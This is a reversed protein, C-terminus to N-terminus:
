LEQSTTIAMLRSCYLEKLVACTPLFSMSRRLNEYFHSFQAKTAFGELTNEFSCTLDESLIAKEYRIPYTELKLLTGMQIRPALHHVVM